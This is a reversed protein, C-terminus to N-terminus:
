QQGNEDTELFVHRVAGISDKTRARVGPRISNVAVYCNFRRANMARLWAHVRPELFVSLPGVRQVARGNEYSKLFIAIWDDPEFATRLFQLAAETDVIM